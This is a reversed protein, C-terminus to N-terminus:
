LSDTGVDVQQLYDWTELADNEELINLAFGAHVLVWDGVEADPTMLLSVEVKSGQFDVTGRAGVADSKDAEDIDVIKGPVALCM